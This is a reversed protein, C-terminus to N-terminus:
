GAETAACAPKHRAQDSVGSSVNQRTTAWICFIPLCLWFLCVPFCPKTWLATMKDFMLRRCAFTVLQNERAHVIQASVFGKNLLLTYFIALNLVSDNQWITNKHGWVWKHLHDIHRCQKHLTDSPKSLLDQVLQNERAHMIQTSAFGKFLLLTDFFPWTWFAVIKNFFLKIADCKKM